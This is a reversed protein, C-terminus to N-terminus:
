GVSFLDTWTHKLYLGPPSKVRTAIRCGSPPQCAAQGAPHKRRIGGGEKGGSLGLM